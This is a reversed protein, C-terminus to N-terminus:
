STRIGYVTIYGGAISPGIYTGFDTVAGNINNSQIGLLIASLNNQAGSSFGGRVLVTKKLTTSSYNFIDFINVSYENNPTANQFAAYLAGPYTAVTGYANTTLSNTTNRSFYNSVSYTSQSLNAHYVNGIGATSAGAGNDVAYTLIVRLDKYAQSINTFQLYYGGGGYPGVSALLDYTKAM